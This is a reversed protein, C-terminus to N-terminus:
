IEKRRESPPFSLNFKNDKPNVREVAAANQFLKEFGLKGVCMCVQLWIQIYNKIAFLRM